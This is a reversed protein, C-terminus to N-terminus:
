DRGRDKLDGGCRPCVKWQNSEIPLGCKKCKNKGTGFLLRDLLIFGAIIIIVALVINTFNDVYYANNLVGEGRHMGMQMRVAGGMSLYPLIYNYAFILLFIAALLYILGKKSNM